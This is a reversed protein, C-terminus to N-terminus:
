PDPPFASWFWKLLRTAGKAYNLLVRTNATVPHGTLLDVTAELIADRPEDLGRARLEALYLDRVQERRKGDAAAQAARFAQRGAERRERWEREHKERFEKFGPVPEDPDDKWARQEEAGPCTCLQQWVTLPVPMRDALPCTAHCSCRCLAVTSELRPGPRSMRMVTTM